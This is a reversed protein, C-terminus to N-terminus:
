GQAARRSRLMAAGLLLTGVAFLALLSVTDCAARLPTRGYALALHHRGPAVRVRILGGDDFSGHGPGISVPAGDVTARWGPFWHANFEVTAWTAADVDADYHGPTRGLSSLQAVGDIVHAVDGFRPVTRRVTKPLYENMSTVYDTELSRLFAQPDLRSRVLPAQPGYEPLVLAFLALVVGAAALWRARPAALFGDVAAPACLPALCGAFLFMRWPFQVYEALPVYKVVPRGIPKTALALALLVGSAGLLALLRASPQRLSQGRPRRAIVAALGAVVAASAAIGVFWRMGWRPTTTLVKDIAIFNSLAYYFGTMVREMWVRKADGIAPVAYGVTLLFGLVGGTVARRLGARSVTGLALRLAIWLVLFYVGFYATINHCAGLAFLSLALWAVDLAARRGDDVDYAGLRTSRPSDAEALSHRASHAGGDLARDLTMIALPFCAFGLSEALDERVWLNTQLYPAYTFLAAAVLAGPRSARRRATHYTAAAGVSVLAFSIVKVTHLSSLGALLFPTAAIYLLPAYLCLFPYGRGYVPDPWWRGMPVGGTLAIKYEALRVIYSEEEHCAYFGPAFLPAVMPAVVVALAITVGVKQAFPDAALARAYDLARRRRAEGAALAVIVIALLTLVLPAWDLARVIAIAHPGLRAQLDARPTAVVDGPGVLPSRWPQDPPRVGLAVSGAADSNWMTVEISHLGARLEQEKPAVRGPRPAHMWTGDVVLKVPATGGLQWTYKGDSRALYTAKAVLTGGPPPTPAVEPTLLEPVRARAVEHGDRATVVVDFGPPGLLRWGAARLSYFLALVALIATAAPVLRRM